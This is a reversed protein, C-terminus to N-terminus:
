YILNIDDVTLVSGIRRADTYGGLAGKDGMVRTVEPSESASSLFVAYCHTAKLSTNSYTIDIKASTFDSKAEGSVLEGRGLETVTGNDRNELVIYVKFSESKYPAFKYSFTMASPRSTFERGYTITEDTESTATHEGVFLMGAAIHKCIGGFETMTSGEGYGITSIEAAKGTVGAASKTGSYSVYNPTPGETTGTTLANRTAWYPTGGKAYAFWRYAEAGFWSTQYHPALESYWNEMNSNPFQITAETMIKAVKSTLGSATTVKVSNIVGPTLGEVLIKDGSATATLETYGTAGEPKVYYKAGDLSPLVLAEDTSVVKIYAKKTYVDYDNAVIEIPVSKVTVERSVKDGAKARIKIDEDLEPLGTVTVTYTNEETGPTANKISLERWKGSASHYYEFKVTSDDVFGGNYTLTVDFDQSSSFYVGEIAALDLILEGAVVKLVLADGENPRSLKDKVTITFTTTNDGAVTKIHELVGSFNVVAMMGPNKWLGRVDLGFSTLQHQQEPTATVLNVSAPWGQALLSESATKLMVEQFGAMAILDMRLTLDNPVGATFGVPEGPTFGTATMSPVDASFLKDGLDIEISEEDLTDDFKVELSAEGVGGENVDVTVIHHYSAKATITPLNLTASQGNAKTISLSISVPGPTVYVPRTEDKFYFISNNSSGTVYASWDKMYGKFADTYTITVMSNVLSATLAVETTKSDAVVITQQGSYAPKDFDEKKKDGYFAEIVYEGVGFETSPDFDSLSEWTKSWSGDTKTLRLSLQDKTIGGEARSKPADSATVADTDLGVIPSIYGKGGSLTNWDDSCSCIISAACLGVLISKKIM